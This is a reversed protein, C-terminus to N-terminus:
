LEPEPWGGLAEEVVGALALAVDDRWKRAIIQVGIPLGDNSTGARVVVAPQGTLSFPVMYVFVEDTNDDAHSIAATPSAPCVIADYQQMFGAFARQLREWEFISREVEDASLTSTRGGTQWQNWTSSSPRAWYRRTISLSEEIRPPVADEVVAGASELARAADGVARETAEDCSAGEFSTFTAIRLGRAEVNRWDDLPVPAVSPDVGDPGAIIELALALDEVSRALPGITTRPDSLAGIRPFHGTLPVRGTTPKLGAVGCCHAPYRISGGSDSGLGVPSGGAAIIAAEGSSSSGPTRAVDHPNYVNGYVKNDRLDVTKGLMIGGARRMRTVVTADHKPVYSRREEFNAACIADNTEIWDKVTFPVGHLPGWVEGRALAEDAEAARSRATEVTLQAVANIRANVAEIRSIHADVIDRSSVQRERIARAM